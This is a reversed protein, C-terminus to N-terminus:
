KITRKGIAKIRNGADFVFDGVSRGDTKSTTNAMRAIRGGNYRMSISAFSFRRYSNISGTVGSCVIRPRM